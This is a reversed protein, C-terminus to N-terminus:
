PVEQIEVEVEEKKIDIILVCKKWNFAKILYLNQHKVEFIYM